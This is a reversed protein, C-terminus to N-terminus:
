VAGHTLINLEYICDQWYLLSLWFESVPCHMMIVGLYQDVTFTVNCMFIIQVLNWTIDFNRLCFPKSPLDQDYQGELATQDHEATQKLM